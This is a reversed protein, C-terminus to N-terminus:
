KIEMYNNDIFRAEYELPSVDFCGTVANPMKMMIGFQDADMYHYHVLSVDVKNVEIKKTKALSQERLQRSVDAAENTYSTGPPVFIQNDTDEEALCPTALAFLALIILVLKKMVM